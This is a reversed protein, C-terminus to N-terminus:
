RVGIFRLAIDIVMMVIALSVTVIATRTWVNIDDLKKGVRADVESIRTSLKATQDDLKNDLKDSTDKLTKNIKDLENAQWERWRELNAIREASQTALLIFKDREQRNDREANAMRSELSRLADYFTYRNNIERQNEDAM